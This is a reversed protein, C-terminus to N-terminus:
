VVAGDEKKGEEDSSEIQKNFKALPPGFLILNPIVNWFKHFPSTFGLRPQPLRNTVLIVMKMCEAQYRPPVNKAHLMSRCIEALHRKKRKGVMNQQPTRPCTFQRWTGQEKAKVDHPGFVVFNGSRAMQLISLLNKKMNPIDYVNLLQVEENNFHPSLTTKGVHTIPLKTNNATVVVRRGKYETVDKLKERDRTM